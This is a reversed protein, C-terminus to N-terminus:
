HHTTTSSGGGSSAGDAAPAQAVVANGPKPAPKPPTSKALLTGSAFLPVTAVAVQKLNKM